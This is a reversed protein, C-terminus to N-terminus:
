PVAITRTDSVSLQNFTANLDHRDENWVSWVINGAPSARLQSEFRSMSGDYGPVSVPTPYTDGKDKSMTYVVDGETSGGIHSYVNTETGWALLIASKNQCNEPVTACNPMSGAMGVLRPEKVHLMDGRPIQSVNSANTWVGAIADYRRYWFNYNDQDTYTAVAWDRAYSYGIYFDDGRLAARHARADEYANLDTTDTLNNTSPADPVSVRAWPVTNSSINLAPTNNILKAAEYDIANAAPDVAPVMDEVRLGSEALNVSGVPRFGLRVMIDGPGGEVAYGQRWFIGMKLGSVGETAQTVFRVRRSNEAPDSIIYGPEGYAYPGTGVTPQNFIFQHYRVYKGSDLRNAGKTEEYAIVARPTANGLKVLASNARSAGTNGTELETIETDPASPHYVPSTNGSQADNTYNNTIRTRPRNFGDVAVHYSYTYWIDTGHTVNAGSAGEGPGDGGGIQLGHPDEQWTLIWRGKNIDGVLASLGKNVDQMADRVGSTIQQTKWETPTAPSFDIASAYVCQFPVTIGDRENYSIMRQEDGECYKDTWSVVAFSGSNFINPKGSDGYFPTAVTSLVGDTEEWKTSISSKDATNSINIAPSWSAQAACQANADSPMCTRVFIDRAPRVSDSKVDYVNHRSDVHDGYATVLMGNGLRVLKSKFAGGNENIVGENSLTTPVTFDLPVGDAACVSSALLLVSLGLSIKIKMM